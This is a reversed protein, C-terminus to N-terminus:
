RPFPKPPCPHPLFSFPLCAPPPPPHLLSPLPLLAPSGRGPSSIPPTNLPAGQGSLLTPDWPSLPLSPTITCTSPPSVPPCSTWWAWRWWAAAWGTSNTSPATAWRQGTPLHSLRSPCVPVCASVCAPLTLLLYCLIPLFLQLVGTCLITQM